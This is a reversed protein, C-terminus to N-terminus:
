KISSLIEKQEKTLRFSEKAKSIARKKIFDDKTQKIEAQALDFNITCLEAYFWATAMKVYYAQCTIGRLHKLIDDIKDTKIFFRMLGLIGARVYFERDDDLLRIFFEYATPTNLTKLSPVICDCTCWNDIFPLVNELYELQEKEDKINGASFGYLLIEEHLSDDCLEIYEPEIEKAYKRLVPLRVGVIMHKSKIFKRNFDAYKLDANESLFRKINQM